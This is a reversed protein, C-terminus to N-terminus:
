RGPRLTGCVEPRRRIATSGAIQEGALDSQDFGLASHIDPM